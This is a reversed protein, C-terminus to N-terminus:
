IFSNSFKTTVRIFKIYSTRKIIFSSTTYTISPSPLLFFFHSAAPIKSPNKVKTETLQIIYITHTSVSSIHFLKIPYIIFDRFKKIKKVRYNEGIKLVVKQEKGKM